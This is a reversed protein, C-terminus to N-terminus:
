KKQVISLLRNIIPDSLNIKAYGGLADNYNYFYFGVPSEIDPKYYYTEDNYQIKLVEVVSEKPEECPNINKMDINIDGTFLPSNTALCNKCNRDKNKDFIQCEVSVDSLIERFAENMKNKILAREYFKEDISKQERSASPIGNWVFKNPITIYLYPQVVREERPLRDHSGMRIARSKVQNVTTIDWSPEIQHTQSINKLDLGETGTKSIIIIKIREGHINEDSNFVKIIHEREVSPVDGSIISFYGKIDNGGSVNEHRSCFYDIRRLIRQSSTFEAYYGHYSEAEKAYSQRQRVNILRQRTFNSLDNMKNAISSKVAGTLQHYAHWTYAENTCDFCRDYGPVNNLGSEPTSFTSWHRFLNHQACIDQYKLADFKEMKDLDSNSVLLRTETSNIPAWSQWLIKGPLYKYDVIEDLPLGSEAGPTALYPPRFKLMAGSRPKILNTWVRQMEMDKMVQREWAVMDGTKGDLRVDSIFIDCKGTWKKAVEDTFFENYLFTKSDQVIGFKAPDYLHFIINPFLKHLYPIHYGPAAGAYVVVLKDTASKVFYTLCQIESIFLKRQGHHLNFLKNTTMPCKCKGKGLYFSKDSRYKVIPQVNMDCYAHQAFKDKNDFGFKLIESSTKKAFKWEIENYSILKELQILASEEAKKDYTMFNKNRMDYQDSIKNKNACKNSNFCEFKDGTKMSNNGGIIKNDLGFKWVWLTKENIIQSEKDQLKYMITGVLWYAFSAQSMEAWSKITKEFEQKIENNPYSSIIYGNLKVQKLAHTIHNKLEKEYWKPNKMLNETVKQIPIDFFITDYMGVDNVEPPLDEEVYCNVFTDSLKNMIQCIDVNFMNYGKYSQVESIHAAVLKDGYEASWDFVHKSRLINMLYAALTINFRNISVDVKDPYLLKIIGDSEDYDSPYTRIFNVASYPSIVYPFFSKLKITDKITKYGKNFQDVNIKHQKENSTDEDNGNNGGLVCEFKKYGALELYRTLPGIGGLNVFQSYVLVSGPASNIRSVILDMKPSNDKNFVEDPIKDFPTDEWEKPLAFNGVSRSKVYYSKANAKESSPLSLTMKPIRDTKEGTGFSKTEADEKERALLYQRYQSKSMEVYEIIMEKEVPFWGDDGPSLNGVQYLPVHSVMGVLRNSLKDSNKVSSNVRDIFLQEFIEYQSPLIEIGTLMNFCPVIEFPNKVIPTGTLFVLRINKATMIMDYIKRANSNKSSSNIIARFFNHAEDIIVLKGDLGYSYIDSKSRKSSQKFLQEASNYADASVFSFKNISEKKQDDSWDPYLISLVYKITNEFNEKLSRPSIVIPQRKDWLSLAIAVALRTKGLGMPMYILLGRSNGMSGIGYDPNVLIERCIYQYYKLLNAWIHDPNKDDLKALEYQDFLEKLKHTLKIPFSTDNRVLIDSKEHEDGM